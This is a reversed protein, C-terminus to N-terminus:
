CILRLRELRLLQVDWSGNLVEGVEDEDCSERIGGESQCVRESKRLIGRAMLVFLLAFVGFSGVSSLGGLFCGFGISEFTESSM